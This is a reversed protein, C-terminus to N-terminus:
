NYGPNQILLGGSVNIERLPIPLLLDTSNFIYGESDAFESLVIQAQGTRVLDYFRHNEFALEYRREDLLMELSIEGSGDTPILSMGARARVANFSEIADLNQTAAMPGMLAEVHMLYVDSMRLVIWDNGCLRANLSSTLYKGVEVPVLPNQTVAARITDAPDMKNIFDDTLYNLGSRVGGATMEFSFDQSENIDDNIYPIAFLIEDNGENFFVDSYNAELGYVGGNILSALLVEASAYDAQNLYVKALLGQAAGSTARGFELAGKSPLKSAADVLDEVIFDLVESKPDRIFYDADNIGIVKDLIPIDGYARVLNFHALARCFKAEGELQNRFGGAPVVDIHELVRNARFIVNYNVSWYDGVAQNTSAVNFSEFQAWDGESSKSRANDSRMETLAFERLPVNQLGDYIAITALEIEEPTSYFENSGIESVPYLDLEKECSVLFVGLVFVTIIKKM